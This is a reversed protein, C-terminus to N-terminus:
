LFTRVLAKVLNIIALDLGSYLVYSQFSTRAVDWFAPLQGLFVPTFILLLVINKVAGSRIKDTLRSYLTGPWSSVHINSCIRIPMGEVDCLHGCAFSSEVSRLMDNQSSYLLGDPIHLEFSLFSTKENDFLFVLDHLPFGIQGNRNLLWVTLVGTEANFSQPKLNFEAFKSTVSESYVCLTIRKDMDACDLLMPSAAEDPTFDLSLECVDEDSISTVAVNPKPLEIPSEEAAAPLIFLASLIAFSLLIATLRKQAKM